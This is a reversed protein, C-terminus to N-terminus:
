RVSVLRLPPYEEAAAALEALVQARGVEIGDEVGDAYREDGHDRIIACHLSLRRLQALLDRLVTAMLAVETAPAMSTVLALAESVYDTASALQVANCLGAAAEPM